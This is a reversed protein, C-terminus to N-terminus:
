NLFRSKYKLKMFLNIYSLLTKIKKMKSYGYKRKIYTIPVEKIRFGELFARVLFEVYFDFDLAELQSVVREIVERKILRFGSTKDKIRMRVLVSLFDNVLRSLLLKWLPLELIKGGKIYRSGIVIDAEELKTFFNELEEPQHNLDADMTLVYNCSPSINEFGVKFARGVGLPYKFYFTEISDVKEKDAIDKLIEVAKYNGQIIFLFRGEVNLKQFIRILRRFLEGLNEEENYAPIVVDIKIKTAKDPNNISLM